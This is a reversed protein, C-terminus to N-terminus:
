DMDIDMEVDADNGEDDHGSDGNGFLRPDLAMDFQQQQPPLPVPAPAPAPQSQPQYTQHTVPAPYSGHQPPTAAPPQVLHGQPTPPGYSQQQHYPSYNNQQVAAGNQSNTGSLLGHYNNQQQSGGFGNSVPTYPSHQIAPQSVPYPQIPKYKTSPAVVPAPTHYTPPLPPPAEEVGDLIRLRRQLLRQLHLLTGKEDQQIAREASAPAERVLQNILDGVADGSYGPTAQALSMLNLAAQQENFSKQRLSANAKATETIALAQSGKFFDPEKMRFILHDPEHYPRSGTARYTRAKMMQPRGALRQFSEDEFWSKKVRDIFDLRVGMEPLRFVGGNMEVEKIVPFDDKMLEVEIIGNNKFGRPTSVDIPKGNKPKRPRPNRGLDGPAAEAQRGIGALDQELHLPCRWTANAKDGVRRRPPVALPPDLCDLHWRHECFDCPILDRGNAAKKCAYCTILKGKADRLEKYNPEDFFGARNMKLGPQTRAQGFEEYEGGDGTRVGDFYDRVEMPLAFAKPIIDQVRGILKGLIGRYDTINKNRKAQCQPCFWEGDVERDPDLPPELCSHHLSNSCGDCCLLKGEGSCSACFEDNDQFKCDTVQESSSILQSM